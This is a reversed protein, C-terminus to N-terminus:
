LNQGAFRYGTLITAEVRDLRTGHRNGICAIAKGSNSRAFQAKGNVSRRRIDYYTSKYVKISLSPRYRSGPQVNVPLLDRSMAPEDPAHRIAAVAITNRGFM